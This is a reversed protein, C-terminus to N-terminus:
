ARRARPRATAARRRHKAQPKYVWFRYWFYNWATFFGSSIFQGIYPTVGSNRLGWVLVYDIVFNAATLVLYRGPAKRLADKEKSNFAWYRLLLFNVTLGTATSVIKSFAFNFGLGKDFLFFLLYGTWFYAGGSAAYAIMQWVTDKLSKQKGM